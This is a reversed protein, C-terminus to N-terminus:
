QAANTSEEQLVDALALGVLTRIVPDNFYTSRGSPHPLLRWTCGDIVQPLILVRELPSSLLPSIAELVETGLMLVSSGRAIGDLLRQACRRKYERTVHSPLAGTLLNRRDFLRTYESKHASANFAFHGLISSPLAHLASWLCFGSSKVPRPVLAPVPDNSYPNSFGVIIPKM